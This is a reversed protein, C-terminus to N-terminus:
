LRVKKLGFTKPDIEMKYLAVNKYGLKRIETRTAAIVSKKVNCGFTVEGIVNKSFPMIELGNKSVARVEKEYAWRNAKVTVMYYFVYPTNAMGDITQVDSIYNVPYLAYDDCLIDLELGICMGAHKDGYHSWMLVDDDIESFCSVRFSTRKKKLAKQYNVPDGLRKLQKRWVARPLNYKNAAEMFFEKEKSTPITVNILLENCDFPDNFDKPNSFKLTNQKLIYELGDKLSIYKYVRSLAMVKKLGEDGISKFDEDSLFKHNSLRDIM